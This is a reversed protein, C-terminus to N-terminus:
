RREMDEMLTQLIAKGRVERVPAGDEEQLVLARKSDCDWVTAGSADIYGFGNKFTYFAMPQQAPNFINRSFRFQSDDLDLQRLLTAAIDAQSWAGEVTMPQAVAGGLWLMPIHHRSIEYHALSSPYTMAHDAVLVVLLNEWLPTQKMADVFGGLCDDTFAMSNLVPDAFREFPVRFPEHSSLTLFTTFSQAGPQKGNMRRFLEEFMVRDDYGWESKGGRLKLGDSGTVTEYGSAYFYSRMNTFDIDGGYLMETSYGAGLLSKAISPLTQSKAPYKMISAAPQAPYGNLVSVLGRDTRFSNAYFRPFWVGEGVLANLRPTVPEGDVNGALINMSFSELLVMLVDPRTTKLVHAISDPEPAKLSDFVSAREEEEFFKYGSAFDRERTLSELFSFAPNVAAHNLFINDSFYVRGVNATSQGVGGRIGLFLLGGIVVMAASWWVKNVVPKVGDLFKRTLWGFGRNLVIWLVFVLLLGLLVFWGPVSAMADGPNRLYFLPTSDLPFKWFPYLMMNGVFVAVLFLSVFIFYIRNAVGPWKAGTVWVSISVALWPVLAVYGAVSVDLKLGHWMVRFWDTFTAGALMDSNQFFMFLPKELM